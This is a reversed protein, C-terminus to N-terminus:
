ELDIVGIVGGIIAGLIASGNFYGICAGIAADVGYLLRLDSHIFLLFYKILMLIQRPLFICYFSVLNYKWFIEEIQSFTNKSGGNVEEYLISSIVASIWPIAILLTFLCAEIESRKESGMLALVIIPLSFVDPVIVLAAILGFLIIKGYPITNGQERLKITAIYAKRLVGPIEQADYSLYGTFGGVLLGVWWFHRGVEMAILTGIFAGFACASFIKLSRNMIKRRTLENKQFSPQM